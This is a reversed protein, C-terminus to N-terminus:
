ITDKVFLDEALERFAKTLFSIDYFARKIAKSPGRNKPLLLKGGLGFERLAKDKRL